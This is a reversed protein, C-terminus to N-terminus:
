PSMAEMADVFGDTVDTTDTTDTPVAVEISTDGYDSFTITQSNSLGELAQAEAASAGGDEVADAIEDGDVTMTVQRIHGDDDVWVEVPVLIDGISLDDGGPMMKDLDIGRGEYIDGLSVEAALGSMVEGDITETGLEEVDEPDGLVEFFTAVDMGGAAQTASGDPLVELLEAKDISAWGDGAAALSEAMLGTPGMQDLTGSPILDLFAAYLPARIYTATSDDITELSMDIDDLEEPMEGTPSMQSFIPEYVVTLDM